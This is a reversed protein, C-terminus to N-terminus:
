LGCREAADTVDFQATVAEPGGSMEIHIISTSAILDASQMCVNLPHVRNGASVGAVVSSDTSTNNYSYSYTVGSKPSRILLMRNVPNNEPSEQRVGVIQAGWPVEYESSGVLRVLTPRYLRIVEDDTLNPDIRGSPESGVVAYTAITGRNDSSVPVDIARGMVICRSAGPAEASAGVAPEVLNDSSRCVEAGERSNIVNVVESYQQQFFSQTTNVSDSYRQRQIGISTGALLTILLAGTIAVFLMTEIITFGQQKKTGM